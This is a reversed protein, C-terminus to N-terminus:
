NWIYNLFYHGTFINGFSLPPFASLRDQPPPRFRTVQKFQCYTQPCRSKLRSKDGPWERDSWSKETQSCIAGSVPGSAHRDIIAVVATTCGDKPTEEERIVSWFPVKVMGSTTLSFIAGARQSSTYVKCGSLSSTASLTRNGTSFHKLFLTLPVSVSRTKCM